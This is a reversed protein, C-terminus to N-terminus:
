GLYPVLVNRDGPMSKAWNRVTDAFLGPRISNHYRPISTFYRSCERLVNDFRLSEAVFFLLLLVARCFEPDPRGDFGALLDLLREPRMNIWKAQGANSLDDNAINAPDPHAFSDRIGSGGYPLGLETYSGTLGMSRSTGGPLVPLPKGSEQFAWWFNAHDPRFGLVYTSRRDMAVHILPASIPATVEFTVIGSRHGLVDDRLKALTSAYFYTSLQIHLRRDNPLNLLALIGSPYEYGSM